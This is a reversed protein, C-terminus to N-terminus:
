FINIEINYGILENKEVLIIQVPLYKKYLETMNKRHQGIVKSKAGKPVCIQITKGRTDSSTDLIKYIRDLFVRNMALEGIASHNAGGYVEEPSSLNESACLGVRICPINHEDFISIVKATRMIADDLELPVYLGAKAMNCLETEYFVVTPYVRVACIKMNCLERATYLEKELTSLPLGIMMQGGLVFGYDLILACAERATASTHGRRSALLVEDDM